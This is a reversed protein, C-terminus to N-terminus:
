PKVDRTRSDPKTSKLKESKRRDLEKWLVSLSGDPDKRVVRFAVIMDIRKDGDLVDFNWGGFNLLVTARFAYARMAYTSNLDAVAIERYERGGIRVGRSLESYQRGAERNEVAPNFNTVFEMGPTSLMISELPVNGFNVIFSQSVVGDAVFVRGALRIDALFDNTYEKKRFSYYSSGPISEACAEDARLIYKSECELDPFIRFLGTNEDKLFKAYKTLDELRPQLRQNQEVTRKPKNPTFYRQTSQRPRDDRIPKMPVQPLLRIPCAILVTLIAAKVIRGMDKSSRPDRNARTKREM